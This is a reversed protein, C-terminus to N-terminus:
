KSNTDKAKLINDYAGKLSIHTQNFAEHTDKDLNPSSEVTRLKKGTEQIEGALVDLNHQIKNKKDDM